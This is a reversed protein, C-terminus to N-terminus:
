WLVGIYRGTLGKEREDNLLPLPVGKNNDSPAPATSLNASNPNDSARYLDGGQTKEALVGGGVDGLDPTGGFDGQPFCADAITQSNLNSQAQSAESGLTEISDDRVSTPLRWISAAHGTEHLLFTAQSLLLSYGYYTDPSVGPVFSNAFGQQSNSNITITVPPTVQGAKTIFPINVLGTTGNTRAPAGPGLDLTQWNALSESGNQAGLTAAARPSGGAVAGSCDSDKL